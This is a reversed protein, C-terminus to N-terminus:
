EEVERGCHPCYSVPLWHTGGVAEIYFGDAFCGSLSEADIDRRVTVGCKECQFFATGNPFDKEWMPHINKTTTKRRGM